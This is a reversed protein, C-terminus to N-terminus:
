HMKNKEFSLLRMGEFNAEPTRKGHPGSNKSSLEDMFSRALKARNGSGRSCWTSIFEIRYGPNLSFFSRISAVLFVSHPNELYLLEIADLLYEAIVPSLSDTQNSRRNSMLDLFACFSLPSLCTFSSEDHWVKFVTEYACNPLNQALYNMSEYNKVRSDSETTNLVKKQSQQSSQHLEKLSAGILLSCKLGINKAMDFVRLNITPSSDIHDFFLM